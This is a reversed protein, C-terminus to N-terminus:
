QCKLAAWLDVVQHSKDAGDSYHFRGHILEQMVLHRRPENGLNALKMLLQFNAINGHLDGAVLVEAADNLEILRGRRGPTSRTLERARRLTNLLKDPDPM